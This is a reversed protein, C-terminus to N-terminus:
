HNKKRFLGPAVGTWQRFARTFAAPESFGLTRAIQAISLERQSLLHIAADRRMGDKIQQFSTGEESLKRRLTRETIHLQEAIFEMRAEAVDSLQQLQDLVRRTYVPYYAQRKFWDLPCRRLYGSLTQTTQVVPKNLLSNDFELYSSPQDYEIPCPFMLRYEASHEPEAYRLGLKNLKIPQGILWGPFRHWILLLLETLLNDPDRRTQKLRLSLRATTESETFELEFADTVLNYFHCIQRFVSRLNSSHIVRQAMLSFVGHRSASTALGMLEDDGQQWIAILLRSLQVPTIRVQPNDILAENLGAYELAQTSDLGNSQAAAAAAQAFHISISHREVGM